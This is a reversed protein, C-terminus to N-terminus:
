PLHQTTGVAQISRLNTQNESCFMVFDLSCFVSPRVYNKIKIEAVSPGNIRKAHTRRHGVDELADSQVAHEDLPGVVGNLLMQGLLFTQLKHPSLMPTLM